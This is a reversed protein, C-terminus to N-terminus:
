RNPRPNASAVASVVASRKKMQMGKNWALARSMCNMPLKMAPASTTTVSRKRAVLQSASTRAASAVM